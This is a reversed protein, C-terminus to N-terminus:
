VSSVCCLFNVLWKMQFKQFTTIIVEIACCFDIFVTAFGGRRTNRFMQIVVALLTLNLVTRCKAHFRLQETISLNIPKSAFITIKTDLFSYAEGSFEAISVTGYFAIIQKFYSAFSLYDIAINAM